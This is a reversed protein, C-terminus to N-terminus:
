KAKVPFSLRFGGRGYFFDLKGNEQLRFDGEGFIKFGKTGLALGGIALASEDKSLSIKNNGETIFYEVRQYGAGIELHAIKLSLNILAHAEYGGGSLTPKKKSLNRTLLHQLGAGVRFWPFGFDLSGGIGEHENAFPLSGFQQQWYNESINLVQYYAAAFIRPRWNENPPRIQSVLSFRNIHTLAESAAGQLLSEPSESTRYAFRQSQEPKDICIAEFAVLYLSGLKGIKGRVLWSLKLANGVIKVQAPDKLFNKPDYGKASAMAFLSEKAILEIEGQKAFLEKVFNSYGAAVSNEVGHGEVELWVIRIKTPAALTTAAFSGFAAFCLAFRFTKFWAIREM